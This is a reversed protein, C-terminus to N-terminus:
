PRSVMLDSIATSLRVKRVLGLQNLFSIDGGEVVLKLPLFGRDSVHAITEFFKRLFFVVGKAQLLFFSADLILAESM